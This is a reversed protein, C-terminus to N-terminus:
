TAIGTPPARGSACPPSIRRSCRRSMGSRQHRLVLRREARGQREVVAARGGMRHLRLLGQTERPSFHDIFGPSCGRRAFRRARLCLWAAGMEGPDVVEWNQYLNARDPRSTPISRWWASGHARIATRFPSARPMPATPSSSRSAGEKMPRFVDARLVVGDDMTIPVDWDIRMGDRTESRETMAQRGGDAGAGRM